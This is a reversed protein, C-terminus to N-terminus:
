GGVNKAQSLFGGISSTGYLDRNRSGRVIENHKNITGDLKAAVGMLLTGLEGPQLGDDLLTTVGEEEKPAKTSDINDAESMISEFEENTLGYKKRDEVRQAERKEEGRYLQAEKLDIGLNEATAKLTKNYGLGREPNKPTWGAPRALNMAAKAAEEPTEAALLKKGWNGETGERGYVEEVLFRAQTEPDDRPKQQKDAYAWMAKLRPGNWQFGGQSGDVGPDKKNHAKPDFSSEVGVRALLAAAAVDPIKAEKFVRAYISKVSQTM